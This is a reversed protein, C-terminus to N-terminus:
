QGLKREVVAKLQEELAAIPIESVIPALFGYIILKMAEERSIGRSMMYHVQEANVQGVSAAHGAKVEDEDILLMPNADGRATPSLMLVRETQEGNAYTAGKEIKTIGNIIATASDRMVARTIMDSTSHKGFHVAKTTVNLKQEGTGVCILKADSASGNGRLVATTDSMSDGLNMEGIVWDIRADSEVIARRYCLNTVSYGLDHVSCYQVRSGSKAFVEVIGNHVLKGEEHGGAYHDVYTVSSNTDAIILVHPAFTSKAQDSYFLAHFPIEVQVNKPIYLFVGGSWIATHLATLKNENMDVAKMFYEQVLESHDTLATSLDTFIVGQDALEAPLSRYIVASNRQVITQKQEEEQLISRITEPLQAVKNVIVDATHAGYDNIAWRDIRTKELQPLELQEAAELAQQRLLIMWDPERLEKSLTEISNRSVPLVTQTTM